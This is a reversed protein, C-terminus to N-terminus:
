EDSDALEFMKAVESGAKLFEEETIKGDSNLDCEAMTSKVKDMLEMESMTKGELKNLAVM